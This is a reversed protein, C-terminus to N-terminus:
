HQETWTACCKTQSSLSFFYMVQNPAVRDGMYVMCNTRVTESQGAEVQKSEHANNWKKRRRWVNIRIICMICVLVYSSKSRKLKRKHAKIPHRKHACVNETYYIEIYPSPPRFEIQANSKSIHSRSHTQTHTQSHRLMPSYCCCCCFTKKEFTLM